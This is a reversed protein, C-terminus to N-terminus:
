WKDAGDLGYWPDYDRPDIMNGPTQERNIISQEHETGDDHVFPASLEDQLLKDREELLKERFNTDTSEKFYQQNSAWAFLVLCMVLDDHHGEEAEYSANKMIFTSLEDLIDFDNVIIKDKELMTKFNSCGIRKVQKTTKVGKQVQGSFGGGIQQGKRGSTNVYVINDYELDLHLIDAIQQGNDNIEILVFSNNYETAAAYVVEPYILPDIHPDSYAAVVEYPYVTVDIIVFASADIGSGRATDVITFYTHTKDPKKYSRLTDSYNKSIPEIFVLKKLTTPSILTNSSGIFEAEFEQRFQEESTNAITEQKWKEDRGPVDWWNVSFNTFNNRNEVSNTWIKYFLDFGNPTSTIIIKTSKGSIITPYVSKFFDDQVHRLVFAFEDLYVFNISYGRIATSATSAALVRSDNELEIRKKSWSVVGQQLWKPLNEYARQLRGLIEIATEQKNALVAITYSDKFLIHWLMSAVACTTKGAQRCTKIVVFRNDKITEAMEAQYPYMKFKVLGEDLNIIKVYNRIFYDQNQSCKVYERMQEETWQMNVGVKKLKPNDMYTDVERDFGDYENGLVTSTEDDLATSM